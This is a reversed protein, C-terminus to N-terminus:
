AGRRRWRRPVVTLVENMGNTEFWTPWRTDEDLFGEQEALFEDLAANILQLAVRVPMRSGDSELVQAHRSFVAMGPGISAQAM